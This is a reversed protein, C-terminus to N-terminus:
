QWPAYYYSQFIYKTGGNMPDNQAMMRFALNEDFLYSIGLSSTQELNNGQELSVKQLELKLREEDLLKLGGRIFFSHYPLSGKSGTTNEVRLEYNEYLFAADTGLFDVENNGPLSGSARSVGLNFNNQNIVGYSIRGSALSDTYALAITGWDTDRSLGSGWANEFGFDAMALPALLLAHSDFYSNLGYAVRSHGIWWDALTNKIKFYSNYLEPDIKKNPSNWNFRGQFALIGRDGTDSSIRHIFDIGLSTKQMAMSQNLEPGLVIQAEKFLLSSNALSGPATLSCFLLALIVLKFTSLSRRAPM